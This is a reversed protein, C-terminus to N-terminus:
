CRPILSALLIPLSFEDNEKMKEDLYIIHEQRLKPKRGSRPADILRGTKRYRSFLLSIAAVSTKIGDELLVEQINKKLNGASKLSIVRKRAYLFLKTMAFHTQNEERECSIEMAYPVSYTLLFNAIIESYQFKM